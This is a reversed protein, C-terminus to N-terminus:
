TRVIGLHDDIAKQVSYGSVHNFNDLGNFSPHFINFDNGCDLMYVRKNFELIVLLYGKTLEVNKYLTAKIGAQPYNYITERTASM